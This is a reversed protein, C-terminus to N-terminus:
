VLTSQKKRRFWAMGLAGLMAGIVLGGAAYYKTSEKVAHFIPNDYFNAGIHLALIRWKGNADKTVTATWRTKMPLFRGDALQYNEIGTGYVLGWNPDDANGHLQTLGDANLQIDLKKLYGGEGFWEKFYADIGEPTTISNQNITTVHLNEHFYQKLDAYQETNIATEIGTLLSRLEQHIAQNAADQVAGDQSSIQQINAESPNEGEDALLNVTFLMLFIALARILM